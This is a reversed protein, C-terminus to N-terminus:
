IAFQIVGPILWAKWFSIAHREAEVEEYEELITGYEEEM